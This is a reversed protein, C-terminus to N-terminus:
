SFPPARGAAQGGQGGAAVALGQQHIHGPGEAHVANDFLLPGLAGPSKEGPQYATGAPVSRSSGPASAKSAQRSSQEPTM